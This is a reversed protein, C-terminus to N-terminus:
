YTDMDFYTFKLKSLDICNSLNLYGVPLGPKPKSLKSLERDLKTEPSVYFSIRMIGSFFCLLKLRRIVSPLVVTENFDIDGVGLSGEFKVVLNCNAVRLLDVNKSSLKYRWFGDDRVVGDLGDFAISGDFIVGRSFFIKALFLQWKLLAETFFSYRLSVESFPLTPVFFQYKNINEVHGWNLKKVFGPYSSPSPFGFVGVIGSAQCLRYTEKALLSFLGRREHNSDVMTDGSQAGLYLARNIRLKVPFVGYFAVPNDIKSYAIYGINALGSFETSHKNLLDQLNPARGFASKFIPLLSSLFKKEVKELKYEM